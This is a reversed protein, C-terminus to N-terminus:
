NGKKKKRWNSKSWDVKSSASKSKRKEEQQYDALHDLPGKVFKRAIKQEPIDFRYGKAVDIADQSGPFYEFIPICDDLIKSQTTPGKLLYIAPAIGFRKSKKGLGKYFDGVGLMLPLPIVENFQDLVKLYEPTPVTPKVELYFFYGGFKFVFDPTYDWGKAKIKFKKPEFRWAPVLSTHDFYVAWRAELRSRYSVKKYITPKAEIPKKKPM